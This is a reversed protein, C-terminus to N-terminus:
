GALYKWLIDMKLDTLVMDAVNKTVDTSTIGMGVGIDASKISLANNVGDGTMATIFGADRNKVMQEPLKM